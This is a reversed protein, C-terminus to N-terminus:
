LRAVPLGAVALLAVDDLDDGLTDLEQAAALLGDARGRDGLAVRMRAIVAAADRDVVLDRELELDGKLLVRCNGWCSCSGGLTAPEAPPLNTLETGLLDFEDVVLVEPAQLAEHGLSALDDGPPDRPAAGPVLALQRM